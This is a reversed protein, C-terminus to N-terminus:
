RVQIGSEATASSTKVRLMATRSQHGPKTYAISEIRSDLGLSHRLSISFGGLIPRNDAAVLCEIEFLM